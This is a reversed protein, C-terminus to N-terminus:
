RPYFIQGDLSYDSAAPQFFQAANFPIITYDDYLYVGSLDAINQRIFQYNAGVTLDFAIGAADFKGHVYGDLLYQDSRNKARYAS